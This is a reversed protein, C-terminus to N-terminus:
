YGKGTSVQPQKSSTPMKELWDSHVKDPHKLLFWRVYKEEFIDYGEELQVEENFEESKNM